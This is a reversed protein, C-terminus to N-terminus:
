RPTRHINGAIVGPELTPSAMQTGAKHIRESWYVFSEDITFAYANPPTVEVAGDECGGAACFRVVADQELWFVGGADARLAFKASTTAVLVQPDSFDSIPCTMIQQQEALFYATQGAVVLKSLPRKAAVSYPESGDAKAHRLEDGVQWYVEDGVVVPPSLDTPQGGSVISPTKCGTLACRYIARDVSAWYVHSADVSLPVEELSSYVLKPKAPCGDLSCVHLEFGQMFVLQDPTTTVTSAVASVYDIVTSDCRDKQCGRIRGNDLDFTVSTWLLKDGATWLSTAPEMVFRSAEDVHREPPDQDLDVAEGGCANLALLAAFVALNQVRIMPKTM